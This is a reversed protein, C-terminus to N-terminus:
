RWNKEKSQNTKKKKKVQRLTEQMTGNITKARSKSLTLM